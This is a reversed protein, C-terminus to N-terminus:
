LDSSITSTAFFPIIVPRWPIGGPSTAIRKPFFATGENSVMADLAPFMQYRATSPTGNQAQYGWTRYHMGPLLTMSVMAGRLPQIDSQARQWDGEIKVMLKIPAHGGKTPVTVPSDTRNILYLPIGEPSPNGFDAFLTLKGHEARAHPPLHINAVPGDLGCQHNASPNAFDPEFCDLWGCAPPPWWAVGLAAAILVFRGIM